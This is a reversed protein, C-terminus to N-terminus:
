KLILNILATVDQVDIVGEADQSVNANAHVFGDPTKGLCHAILATVDKVDVDGDGNVDGLLEGGAGLEVWVGDAYKQPIWRRNRAMEIQWDKIVNGEEEGADQNYVMFIGEAESEPIKRLSNVLETMNPVNIKNRAITIKKLADCGNLLLSTLQNGNCYLTQLASCSQVRLDTLANHHVYLTTLDFNHQCQFVKLAPKETINLYTFKNYSCYILEITNAVGNLATLENHSCDLYTLKSCPTLNLTGALKNNNCMLTELNSLGTLDLETLEGDTCGLLTLATCGKVSLQSLKNSGVGIEKLNTNNDCILTKLNENLYSSFSLTQFKNNSCYITEISRPMSNLETLENNMCELYTLKECNSIYNLKTIKNNNCTLRSLNSLGTLDLATLKNNNCNLKTLSSCETVNLTTLADSYCHLEQLDTNNHIDLVKLNSMMYPQYVGTFKNNYCYLEQLTTPIRTVTTLKNNYCKLKTMASCGTISLSTLANNYCDLQVLQTNNSVDLTNLSSNNILSLNQFKNYAAYVEKISNPMTGLQTLQNDYCSYTQLSSCTSVDISTLANAHCDLTKLATCGSVGLSTLNNSACNLSTLKTLGGVDLSTLMGASCDLSTLNSFYKIGTLNYFNKQRIDFSTRAKVDSSTIYGNPYLGLLYNRFNADPFYSSNLIAVFDDSIYIDQNTIPTGSSNCISKNSSSYYAGLPQLIAISPFSYFYTCNYVSQKSGNSKIRVNCFQTYAPTFGDPSNPCFDLSVTSIAYGGYSKITVYAGFFAIGSGSGGGKICEATGSSTEFSVTGYGDVNVKRNNDIAVANNTYSRISSTSGSNFHLRTNKQLKLAPGKESYLKCTGVFRITLNACDRNHVAYKSSSDYRNITVNNFTLINSSPDYSVTGGSIDGGTVNNKNDSNVEVGGVNIGYSTAANATICAVAAIILLLFNKM